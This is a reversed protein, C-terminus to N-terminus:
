QAIVVLKNLYSEELGLQKGKLLIKLNKVEIEKAFMFGLMVNVTLPFQHMLLVEKKLLSTDLDIELQILLEEETNAEDGKIQTYHMRNLEKIIDRISEEEALYSIEKKPHILHKKIELLGFQEKKLRLVIKINLIDLEAQIFEKLAAGQGALQNSLEFLEEFYYRDLANEIEFLETNNNGNEKQLKLLNYFPFSKIIQMINEKKILQTYFEKTCNVSPILLQIVEEDSINSLKGRIITKFNEMDYRLLYLSLVKQLKEDSIRKLKAFTRVLNKNLAIELATLDRKEVGLEDIEQRYNADQLYRLMENTGMKLLSHWQQQKLLEGKMVSVRAYTYPDFGLWFKGHLESM